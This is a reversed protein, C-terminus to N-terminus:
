LCIKDKNELNSEKITEVIPKINDVKTINKKQLEEQLYENEIKIYTEDM